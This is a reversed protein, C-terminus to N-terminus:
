GYAARKASVRIWKRSRYHWIMFFTQCIISANMAWWIGSPGWGLVVGLFYSLPIRVVWVSLVVVLMVARTDGAGNMAGGLIVGWAMIPEFLLSIYIYQLCEAVVVSNRSLASVIMHANALVGVTLLAVVVVGMMATVRGARYADEQAGKGFLNGVVVANSLNFAFAPLFIASEIRLGNTFAAMTEVAHVPLSAIIAFLTTTSFQWLIQLMGAPWSISVIHAFMKGSFRPRGGSLRKLLGLNVLSGVAHSVITAVAIGRYGLGTKFSLGLALAVNIVTVLGMTALSARIMGAARLIGNTTIILYNALLGLSYWRMLSVSIERISHPLALARVIWEAGAFGLLTTVAGLLITILMSTDVAEALRGPDGATSLKSVVSVTGVSLATAIISLIFYVQFVAGYGAQVEKGFYGAIYVDTLGIFFFFLMILAMPWSVAWSEKVLARIQPNRLARMM